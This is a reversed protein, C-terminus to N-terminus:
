KEQLKTDPLRVTREVGNWIFGLFQQERQFETLKKLNTKVGLGQSMNVISEMNLTTETEKLFLADDVWRFINMLDFEKLLIDQWADTVIGFTGCGAICGFAVTTNIKVKDDFTRIMLVALINTDSPGIRHKTEEFTFSDYLQKVKLEKVFNEEIEKQSLEASKQNPPSYWHEEGIVHQPIGQDFVHKLGNIVDKYKRILNNKELSKEWERTNM